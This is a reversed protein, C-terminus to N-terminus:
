SFHCGPSSFLERLTYQNWSKQCRIHKGLKNGGGGGEKSTSGQLRRQEINVPGGTVSLDRM